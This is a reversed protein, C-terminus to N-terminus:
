NAGHKKSTRVCVGRRMRPGGKPDLKLGRGMKECVRRKEAWGL